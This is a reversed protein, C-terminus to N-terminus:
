EIARGLILDINKISKDRLPALEQMRLNTGLLGFGSINDLYFLHTKDLKEINGKVEFPVLFGEYHAGFEPMIACSKTLYENFM